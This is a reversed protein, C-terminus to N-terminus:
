KILNGKFTQEDITELSTATRFCKLAKSFTEFYCSVRHGKFKMWAWEPRPGRPTFWHCLSSDSIWSSLVKLCGQFIKMWVGRVSEYTIHGFSTIYKWLFKTFCWSRCNGPFQLFLWLFLLPPFILFIILYPFNSCWLFVIEYLMRFCDYDIMWKTM